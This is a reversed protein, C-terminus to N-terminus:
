AYRKQRREIVTFIGYLVFAIPIVGIMWTKLMTSSSESITLYNYGLSKSRISVAEREGILTSVANMALDLNAGSSYANYTANLLYSSAFWIIQGDGSTEISVALSFPGDIDGDEKEYTDMDYGAVKSYSSDSTTLLSTVSSGTVSLGQALPFIVYYNAEILPDTIDSSEINPLLISPSRFAYHERDTDVAVGEVPEVGYDAILSYLNTLTGDETPGAIVLLKGGAETYEQLMTVEEDSLDTTPAYILLADADEPIEDVNLLSFTELEINEKEIQTSLESSLEAEGHGELMYIKPLEDSVVYDIASTIAGEGDFSYVYSYTTYDVDAIYIDEYSIYRSKGGCEVIISNNPVDEDTYQSTFTPFVDPNKKMVTIHTSLGEYKALLNEIVSDEKDAQVIWYITVDKELANVVVKTSSTISYLNTSTMDLKTTNAPFAAALVNVAVLIAIIISIVALSYSGGMAAIRSMKTHKKKISKTSTAKDDSVEKENLEAVNIEVSGNTNTKSDM